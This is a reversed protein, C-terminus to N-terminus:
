YEASENQQAQHAVKKCTNVLHKNHKKFKYLNGGNQFIFKESEKLFYDMNYVPYRGTVKMFARSEKIFASKVLVANIMLVENYGKGKSIDFDDPPLSVFEVKAACDAVCAKIKALDWGSNEAFVIRRENDKLLINQKYFGLTDIYMAEREEASFCAGKMGRTSVSATMLVPLRNQENARM